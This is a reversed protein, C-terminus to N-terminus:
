ETFRLQNFDMAGNVVRLIDVPDRGRFFIVYSGISYCRMGTLLHDMRTGCGPFMGITKKCTERLKRVWKRAAQENHQAIFRGIDVLGSQALRSLIVRSM